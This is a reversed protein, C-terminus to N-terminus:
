LREEGGDGDVEDLDEGAFRSRRDQLSPLFSSIWLAGPLTEMLRLVRLLIALLSAQELTAGLEVYLVTVAVERLGYGNISLPLLTIVYTTVSIALVDWFGIPIGLHVALLYVGLYVILTSATSVLMAYLLERPSHLWIRCADVADEMGAQLRTRFRTWLGTAAISNLATVDDGQFVQLIRDGFIVVVFPFMMLTTTINVLRDVIVSGLSLGERQTYQNVGAVRVLDGGVTSPLFNSAFAGAIVLKFLDWPSARVAQANLLLWWRVTNLAQGGLFCCEAAFLIGITLQQIGDWLALWDLRSLLWVFLLM